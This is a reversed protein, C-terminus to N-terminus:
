PAPMPKLGALRQPWEMGEAPGRVAALVADLAGELRQRTISRARRGEASARASERV